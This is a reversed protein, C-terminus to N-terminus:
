RVTGTFVDTIGQGPDPFPTGVLTGSAKAGAFDGWAEVLTWTGTSGSGGFRARLQLSFGLDGDGDCEFSKTGIFVGGWPTWRTKADDSTTVLGTGCGPISSTFADPNDDFTTQVSAWVPEGVPDAAAAPALAAASTCALTLALVHRRNM